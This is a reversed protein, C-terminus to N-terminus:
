CGSRVTPGKGGGERVAEACLGVALWPGTWGCATASSSIGAAGEVESGGHGLWGVRCAGRSSCVRGRLEGWGPVVARSQLATSPEVAGFGVGVSALSAQPVHPRGSVQVFTSLTANTPNHTILFRMGKYSVEVPAPRNM